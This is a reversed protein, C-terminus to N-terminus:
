IIEFREIEKELLDVVEKNKMAESKIKQISSVLEVTNEAVYSVAKVSEGVTLSIGEMGESMTRMTMELQKAKEMFNKMITNVMDADTSYQNAIGVFGDYDKLLSTMIFQLLEDSQMALQEVSTMVLRSIEQIDNATERSNDALDRIEDAVVAFGRGAEGARAAEISANLAILNTQESIALIQNTLEEIKDVSKSNRIAQGLTERMEDVKYTIQEKSKLTHEQITTARGKIDLVLEVGDSSQDRMESSAALIEKTNSNVQETTANIEEMSASLEEMSASVNEIKAHSEEVQGTVDIVSQEIRKSEGQIMKMISQLQELFQNMGKVLHGAEDQTQIAIRTSLDGKRNEIDQILSALQISASKIPKVITVLVVIIFIITVLAFVGTTSSTVIINKKEVKAPVEKVTNVYENLQNTFLDGKEEIAMIVSNIHETVELLKQQNVSSYADKAELFVKEVNQLSEGYVDMAKLLDNDESKKCLEIMKKLSNDMENTITESNAVMDKMTEKDLSLTILYTSLKCVQSILETRQEELPICIDSMITSCNRMRYFNNMVFISNSIYLCLLIALISVIKTGIHKRM